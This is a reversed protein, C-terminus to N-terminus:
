VVQIRNTMLVIRLLQVQSYRHFYRTMRFGTVKHGKMPMIPSAFRVQNFRMATHEHNGADYEGRKFV